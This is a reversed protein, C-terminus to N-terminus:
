RRGPINELGMTVAAYRAIDGGGQLSEGLILDDVDERPIAARRLAEGVAFRGLDFASVDVLTGKDPRHRHRDPRSLRRRCREM